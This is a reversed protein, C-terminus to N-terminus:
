NLQRPDSPAEQLRAIYALIDDWQALGDHDGLAAFEAARLMAIVEADAGYQAILALAARRAGEDEIM